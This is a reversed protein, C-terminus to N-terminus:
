PEAAARLQHEGGAPGRVRHTASRQVELQFPFTLNKLHM